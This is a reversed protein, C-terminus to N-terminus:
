LTLVIIGVASFLTLWLMLDTIGNVATIHSVDLLLSLLNTGVPKVAVHELIVSM